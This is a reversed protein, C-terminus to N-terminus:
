IENKESHLLNKIFLFHFNENLNRIIKLEFIVHKHMHIFVHTHTHIQTNNHAETVVNVLKISFSETRNEIELILWKEM